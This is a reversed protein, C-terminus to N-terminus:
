TFTIMKYYQVCNWVVLSSHFVISIFLYLHAYKAYKAILCFFLCAAIFVATLGNFLGMINILSNVLPNLEIGDGSLILYTLFVDMFKLFFNIVLLGIISPLYSENEQM